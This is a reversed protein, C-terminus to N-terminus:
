ECVCLRNRRSPAMWWRRRRGICSRSPKWLRQTPGMLYNSRSNAFSFLSCCRSTLSPSPGGWVGTSVCYYEMLIRIRLSSCAVDSTFVYVKPGDLFTMLHRYAAVAQVREPLDSLWRDPNFEWADPGWIQKARNMVQLHVVVTQGKAIVIHDTLEGNPLVVPTSLPIV